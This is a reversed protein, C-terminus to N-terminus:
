LAQRRVPMARRITGFYLQLDSPRDPLPPTFDLYIPLGIRASSRRALPAWTNNSRACSIHFQLPGVLQRKQVCVLVALPPEPIQEVSFGLFYTKRQRGPAVCRRTQFLERRALVLLPFCSWIILAVTHAKEMKELLLPTTDLCVARCACFQAPALVCVFLGQRPGYSPCVYCSSLKKRETRNKNKNVARPPLGPSFMYLPPPDARGSSSAM